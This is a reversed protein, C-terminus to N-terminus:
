GGGTLIGGPVFLLVAPDVIIAVGGAAVLTGAVWTLQVGYRWNKEALFIVSLVAMWGLDMLSVLVLVTMLAWCCGLCYLGHSGGSWLAGRAGSGFDHSLVFGLPHRCARLCVGKWPSFQYLGAIVIVAGGVISAVRPPSASLASGIAAIAVLPVVGAAVWIALYGGVLAATPRWGEGRTAVVSRHALVIPAITPFMMAVMMTVWMPIFLAASPLGMGHMGGMTMSDSQRWTLWWALAALALLLGTVVVTWRRQILSFTAAATDPGTAPGLPGSKFTHPADQDLAGAGRPARRYLMAVFRKGGARRRARGMLARGAVGADAHFNASKTDAWLNVSDALIVCGRSVSDFGRRV